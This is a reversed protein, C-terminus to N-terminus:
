FDVLDKVQVGLGQAVEHLYYFSPNIRGKELRQISSQDKDISYALDAQTIGKAKRIERVKLGLKKLLRKKM